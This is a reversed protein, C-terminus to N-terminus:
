WTGRDKSEAKEFNVQVIQSCLCNLWEPETEINAAPGPRAEVLSPGTWSKRYFEEPWDLTHNQFKINAIDFLVNCPKMATVKHNNGDQKYASWSFPTDRHSKQDARWVDFHSWTIMRKETPDGRVHKVLPRFQTFVYPRDGHNSDTLVLDSRDHIRGEDVHCGITIGGAKKISEAIWAFGELQAADGLLLHFNEEQTLDCHLHTREWAPKGRCFRHYFDYYNYTDDGRNKYYDEKDKFGLRQYTVAYAGTVPDIIQDLSIDPVEQIHRGFISGYGRYKLAKWLLNAVSHQRMLTLKRLLEWFFRKRQLLSEEDTVEPFPLVMFSLDIFKFVKWLWGSTALGNTTIRMPVGRTAKGCTLQRLSTQEHPVWLMRHNRDNTACEPDQCFLSADGNMIALAWLCASYSYGPSNVLEAGIRRRWNCCNAVLAIKDSPVSCDKDALWSVAQMVNTHNRVRNKRAM